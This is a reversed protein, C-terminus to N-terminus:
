RGSGEGSLWKRAQALEEGPFFQIRAQRHGACTFLLFDDEWKPDGVIAIRMAPSDHQLMFRLDSLADDRVWGRFGNAMILLRVSGHTRLEALGQVQISTLSAKDLMGELHVVLTGDGDRQIRAGPPERQERKRFWSM